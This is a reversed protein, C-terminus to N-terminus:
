WLENKVVGRWIVKVMVSLQVFRYVMKKLKIMVNYNDLTDFVQYM